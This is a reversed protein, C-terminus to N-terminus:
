VVEKQINLNQKDDMMEHKDESTSDASVSPVQVAPQEVAPICLSNNLDYAGAGKLFIGCPLYMSCGNEKEHPAMHTCFEVAQKSKKVSKTTDSGKRSIIPCIGARAMPCIMKMNM